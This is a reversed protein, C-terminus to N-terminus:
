TSKQDSIYQCAHAESQIVYGFDEFTKMMSKSKVNAAINCEAETHYYKMPDEVFMTCPNGLTCIVVLVKWM